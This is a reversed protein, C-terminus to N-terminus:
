FIFKSINLINQILLYSSSIVSVSWRFFTFLLDINWFPRLFSEPYFGWSTSYGLAYAFTFSLWPNEKQLFFNLIM